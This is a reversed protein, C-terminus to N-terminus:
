KRFFDKIKSFLSQNEVGSWGPIGPEKYDRLAKMDGSEIVPYPVSMYFATKTEINYCQSNFEDEDVSQYADYLGDALEKLKAKDLTNMQISNGAVRVWGWKEAAYARVDGNGFAVSWLERDVGEEKLQEETLDNLPDATEDLGYKEIMDATWKATFGFWDVDEGNFEDYDGQINNLQERAAYDMAYGEHDMEGIDGDAFMSTGGDLWFEGEMTQQYSTDGSGGGTDPSCHPDIGGGKGTPCYANDTKRRRKSFHTKSQQTPVTWGEKTFWIPNLEPQLKTWRREENVLVELDPDGEKYATNQQILLEHSKLGVLYQKVGYSDSGGVAV